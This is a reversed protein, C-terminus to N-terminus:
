VPSREVGLSDEESVSGGKGARSIRIDTTKVIGVNNMVKAEDSIIYEASDHSDDGHSRQSRGYMPIIRETKSVQYGHNSM